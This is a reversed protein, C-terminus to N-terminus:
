RTRKQKHYFCVTSPSLLAELYKAWSQLIDAIIM